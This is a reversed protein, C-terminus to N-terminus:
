MLTYRLSYDDFTRILDCTLAVNVSKSYLNVAVEAAPEYVKFRLIVQGRNEKAAASLRGVLEETLEDVPVSVTVEKMLTEQAEALMM